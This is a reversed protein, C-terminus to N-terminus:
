TGSSFLTRVGLGCIQDIAFFFLSALVAMGLVMATTILTEKRSPWTVKSVELRVDRLFGVPNINVAIGARFDHEVCVM